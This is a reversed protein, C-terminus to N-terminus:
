PTSDSFTVSGAGGSQPTINWIATQALYVNPDYTSLALMPQSIKFKQGNAVIFGGSQGNWCFCDVKVQPNQSSIYYGSASSAPELMPQSWKM